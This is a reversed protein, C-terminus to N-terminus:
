GTSSWQDQDSFPLREGEALNGADLDRAARATTAIAMTIETFIAIAAALPALLTEARKRM